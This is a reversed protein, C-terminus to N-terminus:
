RKTAVIIPAARGDYFYGVYDSDDLEKDEGEVTIHLRVPGFGLKEDVIWRVISIPSRYCVENMRYLKGDPLQVRVTPLGLPNASASSLRTSMRQLPLPV